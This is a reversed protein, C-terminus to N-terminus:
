MKILITTIGRYVHVLVGRLVFRSLTHLYYSCSGLKYSFHLPTFAFFINGM